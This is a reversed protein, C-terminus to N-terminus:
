INIVINYILRLMRKRRNGEKREQEKGNREEKRGNGTKGKETLSRSLTVKKRVNKKNDLKLPPM